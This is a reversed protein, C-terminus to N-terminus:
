NTARSHEITTVPSSLLRRLTYVHLLALVPVGFSPILLVYNLYLPSIGQAALQIGFRPLYATGTVLAVTFDLLGWATAILAFTRARPNKTAIAYVALLALLGAGIDGYGAPLAFEAPLLKMDLLGLFVFGIIRLIHIGVLWALPVARVVQRFVPSYALPVIGVLTVLVFAGIIYPPGLVSGGPPNLSLYIRVALWGTLVLAVGWRWFNRTSEASTVGQVMQSFGFWVFVGLAIMNLTIFIITHLPFDITM